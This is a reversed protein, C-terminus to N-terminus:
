IGPGRGEKSTKAEAAQDLPATPNSSLGEKTQESTQKAHEASPAAAAKGSAPVENLQAASQREPPPSQRGANPASM